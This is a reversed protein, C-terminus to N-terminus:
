LGSVIEIGGDGPVFRGIVASREFGISSLASLFADAGDEPIALMMGGSTQADFLSEVLLEDHGKPDAVRKEFEARNNYTGAPVLGSAALELVGTILPVDKLSLLLKLGGASLMDLAHGALGFGTVDTCANVRSLLERDLKLPLDNLTSMWGIAEQVTREDEVMHAKLATTAIGTGIPKTLVLLDGARAGDIKWVSDEAVEGFVALGYKPESDEVSHGGVLFAGAERVKELGGSLVAELIELSLTKVPFGVINLAVLPLGGMAFVDSLSNAAAIMGWTRPDDAVPTIFDVTLIGLRDGGIHFLAADEGSSWSTIIRGDSPLPINKM